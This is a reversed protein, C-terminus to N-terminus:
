SSKLMRWGKKIYSPALWAAGILGVSVGLATLLTTASTTDFDGDALTVGAASLAGLGLGVRGTVSRVFSVSKKFM